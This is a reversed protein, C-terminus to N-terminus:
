EVAQMKMAPEKVMEKDILGKRGRVLTDSNYRQTNELKINKTNKLKKQEAKVIDEASKKEKNIRKAVEDFMVKYGEYDTSYYVNSTAFQLSDVKYKKLIFHEVLGRM